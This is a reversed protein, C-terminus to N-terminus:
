TESKGFRRYRHRAFWRYAADRVTRHILFGMPSQLRACVQLM